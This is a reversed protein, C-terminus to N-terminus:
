QFKIAMKAYERGREIYNGTSVWLYSEGPRYTLYSASLHSYEAGSSVAGQRTTSGWYGNSDDILRAYKGANWYDNTVTASSYAAPLAFYKTMDSPVPTDFHVNFNRGNPIGPTAEDVSGEAPATPISTASAGFDAVLTNWKRLRLVGKYVQGEATWLEEADFYPYHTIYWTLQYGTPCDKCSNQAIVPSGAQPTENYWRDDANSQAWQPNTSPVGSGTTLPNQMTYPETQGDFVWKKADWMYPKIEATYDAGLNSTIDYITGASFTASAINKTVTGSMNTAPNFLHYIINLATTQPAMVVYIANSAPSTANTLPLNPVTVTINKSGGTTPTAALGSTSLAFTGAIDNDAQVTVSQIVFDRLEHMTRPLLCLYAAKHDLNFNYKGTANQTATAIGCDGSTGAHDFNNAASQTQNAKIEVETASTSNTGTYMIQHTTGTFSGTTLGFRAYGKNSPTPFAIGSSQRFTGGDDKVWIHDTTEWFVKAGGGVTHTLTTRTAANATSAGTISASTASIADTARTARLAPTQTAGEFVIGAVEGTNNNGQGNQVVDDNSCSALFAAALLAPAISTFIKLKM